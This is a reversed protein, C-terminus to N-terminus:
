ELVPIRVIVLTGKGEESYIQFKGDISATREHINKIGRGSFGAKEVNFGNGNDIVKLEISRKGMLLKVTVKIAGSHKV